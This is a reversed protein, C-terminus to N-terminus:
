ALTIQLERKGTLLQLPTPHKNSHTRVMLTVAAVAVVPKQDPMTVTELAFAPV